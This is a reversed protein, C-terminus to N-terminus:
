LLKNSPASCVDALASLFNELLVLIISYWTGVPILGPMGVHIQPLHHKATVELFALSHEPYLRIHIVLIWSYAVPRCRPYDRGAMRMYSIFISHPRQQVELGGYLVM